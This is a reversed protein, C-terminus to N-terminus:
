SAVSITGVLIVVTAVKSGYRSLDPFAGGALLQRAQARAVGILLPMARGVGFAVGLLLAAGLDLGLLLTALVVLYPAASPIYTRFGVGLELGFRYAGRVLSGTFVDSPIQRRNEPLRVVDSLPGHNSLLVVLSGLALLALRLPAPLPALFGSLVWAVWATIAGGLCTGGLYAAAIRFDYRSRRRGLPLLM